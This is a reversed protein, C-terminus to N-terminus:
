YNKTKEYQSSLYWSLAPKVALSLLTFIFILAPFYYIKTFFLAEKPLTRIAYKERSIMGAMVAATMIIGPVHLHFHFMSGMFIGALGFYAGVTAAWVKRHGEREPTNRFLNILLWAVLALGFLGLAQGAQLFDNHAFPNEQQFRAIGEGPFKYSQFIKEYSGIGWGAAPRDKIMKVTAKYMGARDLLQTDMGLGANIIKQGSPLLPTLSAVLIFAILLKLLWSKFSVRIAIDKVSDRYYNYYIWTAVLVFGFQLMGAKSRALGEIIIFIFLMFIKLPLYNIKKEFLVRSLLFGFPVALYAAFINNNPFFCDAFLGSPDHTFYKWAFQGSAVACLVVGTWILFNTIIIKYTYRRLFQSYLYYLAVAAAYLTFYKLGTYLDPTYLLSIASLIALFLVPMDLNTVRIDEKSVTWIGAAAVLFVYILSLVPSFKGGTIASLTIVALVAGFVISRRKGPNIGLLYSLKIKKIEISGITVQSMLVALVAMFALALEFNYIDFDALNHILFATLGTLLATITVKRQPTRTFYFNQLLSRVGYFAALLVIILGPLGLEILAQLVANHAFKLYPSASFGSNNYVAEFNGPGAGTILYHRAIDLMKLWSEFRPILAPLVDQPGRVWLVAAFVVVALSLIALLYNKFNKLVPDAASFFVLAAAAILSFFAGLSKTLALNAAMLALVFIFVPRLKKENKILGATVPIFLVLLGAFSNPYILTSFIRGSKIRDIIAAAQESPHAALYKLTDNFGFFYQYLGYLCLLSVLGTLFVIFYRSYKRAYSYVMYYFLLLVFFGVAANFSVFQDYANLVSIITWVFLLFLHADIPTEIKDESKLLKTRLIFLFGAASIAVRYFVGADAHLFAPFIFACTLTVALIALGSFDLIKFIRDTM